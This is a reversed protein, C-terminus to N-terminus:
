QRHVRREVVLLLANASAAFVFLLLTLAM